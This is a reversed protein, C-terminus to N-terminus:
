GTSAARKLRDRVASWLQSPAAQASEPIDEIVIRQAGMADMARLKDYLCNAYAAPDNPAEVWLLNARYQLAAPRVSRAFIAFPEGTDALTTLRWQFAATKVLEVPTTPAYHSELSGSVKPASVLPAALPVGLVQEIALQGIIGPRLLIPAQGPMVGVITSEIGVVSPGGDLIWDVDNGLDAQVHAACTPSVKGFRNASPAAVGKGGLAEYEQLLAQALPHSPCRLGISPQGGCAFGPAESARPLVITLPGPWFSRTLADVQAQLEAPLDAIWYRASAASAVHVILPHDSPRGKVAYVRRVAAEQSADAGLGYVTETAFAVLAGALLQEAALRSDKIIQM